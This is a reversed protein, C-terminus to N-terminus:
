TDIEAQSVVVGYQDLLRNVKVEIAHNQWYIAHILWTLLAEPWAGGWWLGGSIMLASLLVWTRTKMM